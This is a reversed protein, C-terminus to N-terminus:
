VYTLSARNAAINDYNANGDAYKIITQNSTSTDLRLVKWVASASSSGPKSLCVYLTVTDAQDLIVAQDNFFAAQFVGPDNM